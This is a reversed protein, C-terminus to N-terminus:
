SAFLVMQQASPTDVEAIDITARGALRAIFPDNSESTCLFLSKGQPGGLATAFVPRKTAIQRDINGGESVRVAHPVGGAVWIAGEHDLCIGSPKFGDQFQAWVRRNRLRGGSCIEFATLRHGLTEAVILTRDDPTIIMGSPFFLGEAVVSSTGEASIHIIVGSSLPDILPDQFDFGADGVYLDGRSDVIGDSLCFKAVSSIDTVQLQGAADSRFVQRRWADGVMYGGEPLICFGGPLYDLNQVTRVTGQLSSSKICRDYVDLFMLKQGDWQPCKAFRLGSQTNVLTTASTIQLPGGTPARM